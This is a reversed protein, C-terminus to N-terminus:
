CSSKPVVHCSRGSAVGGAGVRGGGRRVFGSSIKCHALPTNANRLIVRRKEGEVWTAPLSARRHATTSPWVSRTMRALPKNIVAIIKTLM